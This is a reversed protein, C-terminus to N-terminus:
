RLLLSVASWLWCTTPIAMTRLVGPALAFRLALGVVGAYVLPHVQASVLRNHRVLDNRM